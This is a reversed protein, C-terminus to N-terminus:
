CGTSCLSPIRPSREGAPIPPPIERSAKMQLVVVEKDLDEGTSRGRKALGPCLAITAEAAAQGTMIEGGDKFQVQNSLFAPTGPHHFVWEFRALQSSILEDINIAEDVIDHLAAKLGRRWTTRCPTLCTSIEAILESKAAETEENRWPEGASEAKARSRQIISTTTASWRQFAHLDDVTSSYETYILCGM